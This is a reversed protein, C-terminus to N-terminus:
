KLSSFYKKIKKLATKRMSTEHKEDDTMEAWTKRYNKPIFILDWGFGNKGKPTKAIEGEIRGSFFKVGSKDCFAFVVEAVASRDKYGDLLRCLGDNGLSKLFWKIFPGPLNALAKFELSVDEVLVPKKIQAYATRAKNEAIKKLNFSQIEPIDLKLNELPLNFYKKLYKLKGENSSIFIVKKM